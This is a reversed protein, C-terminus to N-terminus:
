GEADRVETLVALVEQWFARGEAQRTPHMSLAIEAAMRCAAYVNGQMLMRDAQQRADDRRTKKEHYRYTRSM